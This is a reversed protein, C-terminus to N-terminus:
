SENKFKVEETIDVNVKRKFFGLKGTITGDLRTTVQGTLAATLMIPLLKTQLNEGDTRIVLDYAKQSSSEIKLDELLTAKGMKTGEIYLDLDSGVVNISFGNPNNLVATVDFTIQKPRVDKVELKTLQIFEVEEVECSTFLILPLAILLANRLSRM